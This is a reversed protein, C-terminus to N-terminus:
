VLKRTLPGTKVPVVSVPIGVCPEKTVRFTTKPVAEAWSVTVACYSPSLSARGGM